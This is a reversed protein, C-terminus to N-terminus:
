KKVEVITRIQELRYALLNLFIYNGTKTKIKWLQNIDKINYLIPSAVTVVKELADIVLISAVKPLEFNDFFNNVVSYQDSKDILMELKIYKLNKGSFEYKITLSSPSFKSKGCTFEPIDKIEKVIAKSYINM